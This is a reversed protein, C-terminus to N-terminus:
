RVDEVGGTWDWRWIRLGVGGEEQEQRLSVLAGGECRVGGVEWVEAGGELRRGGGERGVVFVGESVGEGGCLLHGALAGDLAAGFAAADVAHFVDARGVVRMRMAM